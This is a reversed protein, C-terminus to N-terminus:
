TEREEPPLHRALDMSRRSLEDLYERLSESATFTRCRGLSFDALGPKIAERLVALKARAEAGNQKAIVLPNRTSMENSWREASIIGSM